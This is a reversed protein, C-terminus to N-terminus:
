QAMLGSRVMSYMSPNSKAVEAIKEIIILIDPENEHWKDLAANLRTIEANGAMDTNQQQNTQTNGIQKNGGIQTPTGLFGAILPAAYPTLKELVKIWRDDFGKAEKELEAIRAKLAKNEQDTQYKILAEQIKADVDIPEPAPNQINGISSMQNSYSSKVHEFPTYKRQTADAKEKGRFTEVYYRGGGLINFAKELEMLGDATTAEANDEPSFEFCPKGGEGGEKVKFFPYRTLIFWQKLNDIGVIM